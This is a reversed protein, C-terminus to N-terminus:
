TGAQKQSVLLSLIRVGIVQASSSIASVVLCSLSSISKSGASGGTETPWDFDISEFTTCQGIVSSLQLHVAAFRSFGSM